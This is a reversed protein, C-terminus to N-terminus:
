QNWLFNSLISLDMLIFGEQVNLEKRAKKTAPSGRLKQGSSSDEINSASATGRRGDQKPAQQSIQRKLKRTRGKRSRNKDGMSYLEIYSKSIFELDIFFSIVDM